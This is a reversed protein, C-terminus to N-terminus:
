EGNDIEEVDSLLETLEDIIATINEKRRMTFLYKVKGRIKAAGKSLLEKEADLDDIRKQILGQIIQNNMQAEKGFVGFQNLM